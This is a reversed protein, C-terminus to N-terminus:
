VPDPFSMFSARAEELKALSKAQEILDNHLGDVGKFEALEQALQGRGKRTPGLGVGM